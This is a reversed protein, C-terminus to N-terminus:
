NCYTPLELYTAKWRSAIQLLEETSGGEGSLYRLLDSANIAVAELWSEAPQASVLAITNSDEIVKLMSQTITDLSTPKGATWFDSNAKDMDPKLVPCFYEAMGTVPDISTDASSTCGTVLVLLLIQFLLRRM